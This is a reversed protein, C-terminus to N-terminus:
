KGSALTILVGILVGALIIGLVLTGPNIDM